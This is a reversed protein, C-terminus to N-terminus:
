VFPMLITGLNLVIELSWFGERACAYVVQSFFILPSMFYYTGIIADISSVLLDVHSAFVEVPHASVGARKM